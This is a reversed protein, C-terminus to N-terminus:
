APSHGNGREYLVKGERAIESLLESPASELRILDVRLLTPATEVAEVIESWRVANANPCAVALDIDSRPASDGRARSGFLIMREVEAFSKLRDAVLQEPPAM